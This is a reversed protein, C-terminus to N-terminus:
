KLNEIYNSHVQIVLTLYISTLITIHFKYIQLYTPLFVKIELIQTIDQLCICM